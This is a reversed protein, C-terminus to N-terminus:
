RARLARPVHLVPAAPLRDNTAGLPHAVIRYDFAVNSRGRENEHVEFGSPGKASVYLGHTDGQPTLFVFYQAGRETVSQFDPSIRVNASGDFTRATGFDEITETSTQSSYTLVQHGQASRQRVRSSMGATVTGTCQLDAYEDIYCASQNPINFAAFLNTLANDGQAVLASFENVNGSSEAYVADSSSRGYVGIAGNNSPTSEGVVGALDPTYYPANTTGFVGVGANSRGYVGHATGSSATALGAVGSAAATTGATTFTGGGGTTGTGYVGYTNAGTSIGQLCATGTSCNFVSKGRPPRANQDARVVTFSSLAIAAGVALISFTAARRSATVAGYLRMLLM